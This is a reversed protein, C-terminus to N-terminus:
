GALKRLIFFLEEFGIRGDSHVDAALNIEAMDTFGALIKLKCNCLLIERRTV